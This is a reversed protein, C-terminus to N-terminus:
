WNKLDIAPTNVIYDHRAQAFANFNAAANVINCSPPSAAANAEAIDYSAVVDDVIAAIEDPHLTLDAQLKMRDIFEDEYTRLFSDKVRNWWGSRNADIGGFADQGNRGGFISAQAGSGSTNAWPGFNLDLDWPMMSWRGDSRRQYFLHNQFYDDFPVSWNMILIHDLTMDVDFNQELYAQTLPIDISGDFYDRHSDLEEFMAILDDHGAWDHTKRDYTYTYRTLADHGCSAQITRGDGWGYPGADGNLGVSKFLHGVPEINMPDVATAEHYAAMMEEGPHEIEMMTRYHGGNIHFRIYRTYPAAIGMRRFLEFGVSAALGPCGQTLKNLTVVARGEFRDYRPFAVRYSLGRLPSPASPGDHDWVAIQPGNGRNWRSGQYRVQVDHVEGEYVFVGPVRDNWTPSAECGIERGGQINTWMQTWNDSALFLQYVRSNSTIVPSVFYAHYPHPDSPRPSIQEVGNGRDGFVRYRVISDEPQGPLQVSVAREVFDTDPVEISTVPEGEAEIDDVFYDVRVNTLSGYTSFGLALTVEEGARILPDPSPTSAQKSLLIPPPDDVAGAFGHGPSPDDVASPVWNSIESTPASSSVRELSVGRYRHDELPLLESALWSEGAGLADAAIPWPFGDEYALHDVISSDDSRLVIWDDGNELDGDYPGVVDSQSLAYEGVALLAKPDKAVVLYGGPEISTGPAFAFDIGGELTWGDLPVLEAGPNHLEVFEHHDVFDEELVPHYMVETIQIELPETGPGTSSEDAGTDTTSGTGTTGEVGTESTTESTSGNNSTSGSDSGTGGGDTVTADDHCAATPLLCATLIAARIPGPCSWSSDIM